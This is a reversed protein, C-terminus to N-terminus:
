EINANELLSSMQQYLLEKTDAGMVISMYPEGYANQCLLALCNGADSTTGTKGGLITIGKPPTAEGTLYHDTAILATHVEEGWSRKYSITYNGLQTIETFEPYNLAEKLMLYIDYPTTYHNEDQLGDPNAFHTGTCGLEAAKDNMMQVFRDINSLKEPNGTEQNKRGGVYDALIVAADNGSPVMLCNLAEYLSMTEGVMINAISSGTGELSDKLEQTLTVTTGDLDEVNESVVIYTLIKTTSAPEIREDANKTYVVTGTDLNKMFIANCNTEFDITFGEDGAASAPFAFISTFLFLCSFLLILKKKM